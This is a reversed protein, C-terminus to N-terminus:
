PISANNGDNVRALNWLLSTAITGHIGHVSGDGILFHVVGVHQSGFGYDGWHDDPKEDPIVGPDNPNAVLSRYDQHIFRATNFVQDTGYATLYGGDWRKHPQKDSSLAFSPIFKEGVILQNSTGDQWWAMSDRCEWGVVHNQSGQSSGDSNDDFRPVSVRLPGTFDSPMAGTRTSLFGFEAWYSETAKTVVVAYDCRPGCQQRKANEDAASEDRKAFGNAATHRSPCLYASISGIGKQEEPSLVDVSWQDGNYGNPFRLLGDTPGTMRDYLAPQEIYPYLYVFFSGKVAFIEVPPLGKHTDHFNHVGIGIQKLNNTCTM